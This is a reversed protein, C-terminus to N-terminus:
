SVVCDTRRQRVAHNQLVLVMFHMAVATLRHPVQLLGM